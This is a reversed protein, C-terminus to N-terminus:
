PPSSRPLTALGQLATGDLAARALAAAGCATADRAREDDVPELDAGIRPALIARFEASRALGGGARVRACPTGSARLAAAIGGIQAAIAELVARSLDDRGHALSLGAFAGHPTADYEPFRTGAFAPTCRLGRAGDPSRAAAALLAEVRQAPPLEAFCLEACWAVLNGADNTAAGQIWVGEDLAYCFLGRAADARPATIAARLAASTGFSAAALGPQLAALGLNALCGDSAGIVIPTRADLGFSAALGARWDTVLQRTPVIQSLQSPALGAIALARPDWQARRLDMLGTASALSVDIRPAGCARRLFLEKLSVFAAARAALAADERRWAALKCLPSSAHVPTGTREHLASAEGSARLERACDEGRVDAWIRLPALARDAADIPVVGHMACALALARPRGECAPALAALARRAAELAADADQEAIGPSPSRTAIPEEARALVRGDHAVLLAKASTTGLDLALIPANPSAAM